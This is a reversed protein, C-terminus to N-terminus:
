VIISNIVRGFRVAFFYLIRLNEIEHRIASPARSQPAKPVGRLEYGMRGLIANVISKM